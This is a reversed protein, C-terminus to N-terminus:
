ILIVRLVLTIVFVSVWKYYGHFANVVDNGGNILGEYFYSWFYNVLNLDPLQPMNPYHISEKLNNFFSDITDKDTTDVVIDDGSNFSSLLASLYEESTIPTDTVYLETFVDANTGSSTLPNSTARYRGQAYISVTDNDYKILLTIQYIRNQSKNYIYLEETTETLTSSIGIPITLYYYPASSYGSLRFIAKLSNKNMDTNIEQSESYVTQYGPTGPGIYAFQTPLYTLYNGSYIDAPNKVKQDASQLLAEYLDDTLFREDLLTYISNLVTKLSIINTNITTLTTQMSSLRNTNTVISNLLSEVTDTNAIISNLQTNYNPSSSLVVNDVQFQSVYVHLNGNTAWYNVDPDEAIALNRSLGYYEELQEWSFILKIHVFDTNYATIDITDSFNSLVYANESVINFDARHSTNRPVPLKFTMHASEVPSSFNININVFFTQQYVSTLGLLQPASLEVEYNSDDSTYWYTIQAINNFSSNGTNNTVSVIYDNKINFTILSSLLSLITIVKM